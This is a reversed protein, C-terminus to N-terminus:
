RATASVELVHGVERVSRLALGLAEVRRRLGSVRPRLLNKGKVEDPWGARLLDDYGVVQGFREVLPRALREEVVSLATWRGAFIIRGAGDLVPRRPSHFAHDRLAALRARVDRDDCPTRIWDELGDTPTEPDDTPGLVLLRPTGIRRLDDIRAREHPWSLVAIAPGGNLSRDVHEIISIHGVAAERGVDNEVVVM